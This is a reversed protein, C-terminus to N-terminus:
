HRGPEPYLWAKICRSRTRERPKANLTQLVGNVTGSCNCTHLQIETEWVDELRPVYSIQLASFDEVLWM